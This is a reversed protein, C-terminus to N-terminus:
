ENIIKGEKVMVVKCDPCYDKIVGAQIDDDEYFKKVKFMTIMIAKWMGSMTADYRKGFTIPRLYIPANTGIERVTKKWWDTRRGSIVVYPKKPKIGELLVGDIDYGNLSRM